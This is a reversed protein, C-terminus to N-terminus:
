RFRSGLEVVRRTPSDSLQRSESEALRSTASMGIQRTPSDVVGRSASDSHQSKFTLLFRPSDGHNTLSYSNLNKFNIM